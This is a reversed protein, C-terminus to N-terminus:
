KLLLKTKAIFLIDGKSISCPSYKVLRYQVGDQAKQIKVGNEMCIDEVYWNGGAYNLVAHEEEILNSYISLNLDIDVQNKNTSKGILLSTKDLISWEKVVENEENVLALSSITNAARLNRHARLYLIVAGTVAAIVALIVLLNKIWIADITIYLLICILTLIVGICVNIIQVGMFLTNNENKNSLNM